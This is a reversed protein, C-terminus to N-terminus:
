PDGEIGSNAFDLFGNFSSSAYMQFHVCYKGM